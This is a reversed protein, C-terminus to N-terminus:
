GPQATPAPLVASHTSDSQVEQMSALSRLRACSQADMRCSSNNPSWQQTAATCAAHCTATACHVGAGSTPHRGHSPTPQCSPGWTAISKVIEHFRQVPIAGDQTVWYVTEFTSRSSGPSLLTSVSSPPSQPQQQALGMGSHLVVRLATSPLVLERVCVRSCACAAAAQGAPREACVGPLRLQAAAHHCCSRGGSQCAHMCLSGSAAGCAAAAVGCWHPPPVGAHATCRRVCGGGCRSYISGSRNRPRPGTM